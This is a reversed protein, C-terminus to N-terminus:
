SVLNEIDNLSDTVEDLGDVVDESNEVADKSNDIDVPQDVQDEVRSCGIIILFLTLFLITKLKM